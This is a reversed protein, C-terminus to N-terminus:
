CQRLQGGALFALDENLVSWLVAIQGGNEAMAFEHRPRIYGDVRGYDEVYADGRGATDVFGGHRLCAGIIGDAYDDLCSLTVVAVGLRCLRFPQQRREAMTSGGLHAM